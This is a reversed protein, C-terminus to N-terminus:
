SNVHLVRGCGVWVWGGTLGSAKLEVAAAADLAYGAVEIDDRAASAPAYLIQNIKIALGTLAPVVLPRAHSAEMDVRSHEVLGPDAARGAHHRRRASEVGAVVALPAHMDHAGLALAAASDQELDAFLGELLPDLSRGQMIHPYSPTPQTAANGQM